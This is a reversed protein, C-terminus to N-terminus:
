DIALTQADGRLREVHARADEVLAAVTGIEGALDQAIRADALALLLRQDLDVPRELGLRRGLAGTFPRDGFSPDRYCGSIGTRRTATRLTWVEGSAWGPAPSPPPMFTYTRASAAPSACAPTSHSTKVRRSSGPAGIMVRTSSRKRTTWMSTPGLPGHRQVVQGREDIREGVRHEVVHAAGAVLVVHQVGIVPDGAGHTMPELVREVAREDRREVRERADLGLGAEIVLGLVAGSELVFDDVAGVQHKRRRGLLPHLERREVAGLWRADLDHRRADIM